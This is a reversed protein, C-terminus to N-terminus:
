ESSTGTLHISPSRAATFLRAESEDTFIGAGHPPGIWAVLDPLTASPARPSM